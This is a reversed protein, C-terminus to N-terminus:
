ARAELVYGMGRVTHLLPREFPRDVKDRLRRVAVEVVNTESDFNMGWVQAALETRSLVAGQRRLLLTLLNFEKNTLDVRQGARVVRRRILDVELDALRLVTAEAPAATSRRLLVQIRAVLESFAFPKVLYDDAGSRLGRVRDEVEGRATLMLVPTQRSQRLAALVALGDLGPLMGDLVVLDYPHQAAAELGSLGDHAVDVAFGEERLGKQLYLALKTEDEIVLLQM